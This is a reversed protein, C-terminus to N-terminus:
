CAARAEEECFRCKCAAYRAYYRHSQAPRSQSQRDHFEQMADAANRLKHESFWENQEPGMGKWSVLYECHNPQRKHPEPRCALVKDTEQEAQRDLLMAPPPASNRGGEKPRELLSVLFVPHVRSMSALSLLKFALRGVRETIESPGLQRPKRSGDTSVNLAEPSFYAFEGLQFSEDRHKANYDNSMRQQAYKLSDKARAIAANIRGVFADVAPLKCVMNM